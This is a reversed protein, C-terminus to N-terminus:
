TRETHTLLNLAKQGGNKFLTCAEPQQRGLDACSHGPLAVPLCSSSQQDPLEATSSM